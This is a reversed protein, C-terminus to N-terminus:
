QTSFQKLADSVLNQKHREVVLPVSTIISNNDDTEPTICRNQTDKDLGVESSKAVLPTTTNNTQSNVEDELVKGDEEKSTINERAKPVINENVDGRAPDCIM